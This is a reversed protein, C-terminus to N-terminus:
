MGLMSAQLAGAGRATGTPTPLEAPWPQAHFLHTWLRDLAVYGYPM